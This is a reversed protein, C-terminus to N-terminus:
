CLVAHLAAHAALTLAARRAKCYLAACCAECYLAARCVKCYLAASRLVTWLVTWLAADHLAACMCCRYCWTSGTLM